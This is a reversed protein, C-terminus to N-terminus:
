IRGQCARVLHNPRTICLTSVWAGVEMAGKVVFRFGVSPLIGIYWMVVQYLVYVHRSGPCGNPGAFMLIITNNCLWKIVELMCVYTCVTYEVCVQRVMSLGIPAQPLALFQSHLWLYMYVECNFIAKFSSGHSQNRSGKLPVADNLGFQNYSGLFLSEDLFCFDVCAWSACCPISHWAHKLACSMMCALFALLHCLISRCLNGLLWM